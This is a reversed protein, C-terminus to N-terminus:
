NSTEMKSKGMTFSKAGIWASPLSIIIVSINYWAVAKDWMVISGLLAFLTGIVGIILAHKMPKDPALKSTLYCGIVNYIFRYIIVILIIVTSSDKFSEMDIIGLSNLLIDTGISLIAALMFGALIAAISKWITRKM